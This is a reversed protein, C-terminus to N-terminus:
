EWNLNKIKEPIESGWGEPYYGEAVFDKYSSQEWDAASKILGHKVPNYHIYDCHRNYDEQDRIANEWFRRQWIGKENKRVMSESIDKVREGSYQRSFTGKIMKWRTSFDSEHEPLTWIMHLHDPLIVFANITFPFKEMTNKICRWLLKVSSEEIFVPRRRFTVITFFLTGGKLYLRQYDPM